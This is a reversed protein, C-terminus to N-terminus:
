REKVLRFKLDFSNIFSHIMDKKLAGM